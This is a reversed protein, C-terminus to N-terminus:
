VISLAREQFRKQMEPSYCALNTMAHHSTCLSVLNTPNNNNPNYDIHHVHLGHNSITRNEEETVPCHDYQCRYGDRELVIKRIASFGPPSSGNRRLSSKIAAFKQPTYVPNGQEDTFLSSVEGANQGEVLLELAVREDDLDLKPLYRKEEKRENSSNRRKFAAKCGALQPKSLHYTEMIELDPMGSKISAYVSERDIKPKQYNDSFRKQHLPPQGLVRRELPIPDLIQATKCAVEKIEQDIWDLFRKFNGRSSVVCTLNGNIERPNLNINISRPQVFQTRSFAYFDSIMTTNSDSTYQLAEHAKPHYFKGARTLLYTFLKLSTPDHNFFLEKGILYKDIGVAEDLRDLIILFEKRQAEPMQELIHPLIQNKFLPINWFGTGMTMVSIPDNQVAFERATNLDEPESISNPDFIVENKNVFEFLENPTAYNMWNRNRKVLESLSLDSKARINERGKQFNTILIPKYGFLNSLALSELDRYKAEDWYGTYDLSVIDFATSPPCTRAFDAISAHVPVIRHELSDNLRALEAYEEQSRELGVIHERRVGLQDYVEFVERMERGPLCLVRARQIEKPTLNERVFRVIEQRWLAKASDQSFSKVRAM